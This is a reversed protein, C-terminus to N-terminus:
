SLRGAVIATIAGTAMFTAVAVLSRGSGRSIGCVGHGSTCGNGLRTGYGVLLGAIVVAAMSRVSPGIAAPVVIAAVVGAAGLGGVFAFRWSRDPTARELLGGTIGSIGAIRGHAVMLVVGALGIMAGGLCASLWTSLM